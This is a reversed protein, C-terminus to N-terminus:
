SQSQSQDAEGATGKSTDPHQASRPYIRCAVTRPSPVLRAGHHARKAQPSHFRPSSGTPRTLASQSCSADSSIPNLYSHRPHTHTHAAEERRGGQLGPWALRTRPPAPCLRWRNPKQSDAPAFRRKPQARPAHTHKHRRQERAWSIWARGVGRRGKQEGQLGQALRPLWPTAAGGATAIM